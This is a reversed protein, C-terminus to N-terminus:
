PSLKYKKKKQSKRIKSLRLNEKLRKIKRRKAEISWIFNVNIGYNRAKELRMSMGVAYGPISKSKTKVKFCTFVDDFSM